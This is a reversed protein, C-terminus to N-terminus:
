LPLQLWGPAWSPSGERAIFGANTLLAALHRDPAPPALLREVGSARLRDAVEDILRRRLGCGLYGDSVALACLQVTATNIPRVVAVGALCRNRASTLDCLAYWACAEDQGAADGALLRAAERREVTGDLRRFVIGVQARHAKAAM